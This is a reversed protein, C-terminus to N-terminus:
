ATGAQQETEGPQVNVTASCSATGAPNVATVCYSGVSSPRMQKILLSHIGGESVVVHFADSRLVVNDKRWKVSSAAFSFFFFDSWWVEWLFACLEAWVFM